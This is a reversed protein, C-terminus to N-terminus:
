ASSPVSVLDDDSFQTAQQLIHNFTHLIAKPERIRQIPIGQRSQPAAIINANQQGAIQTAYLLFPNSEILTPM